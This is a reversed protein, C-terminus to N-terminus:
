HAKSFIYNFKIPRLYDLKWSKDELMFVIKGEEVVTQSEEDNLYNIEVSVKFNYGVRTFEHLITGDAESYFDDTLEISKVRMEFQKYVAVDRYWRYTNNANIMNIARENSYDFFDPIIKSEFSIVTEDTNSWLSDAYEKEEEFRQEEAELDHISYLEKLVEKAMRETSVPKVFYYIMLCLLISLSGLLLRKKM